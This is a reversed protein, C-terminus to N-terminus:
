KASSAQAYLTIKFIGKKRLISLTKDLDVAQVRRDAELALLTNAEILSDLHLDLKELSTKVGNLYLENKDTLQLTVTKEVAQAGNESVPLEIGQDQIDRMHGAIMFFVLLLFVINIMPIMNSDGQQSSKASILRQNVM